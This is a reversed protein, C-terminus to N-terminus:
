LKTIFFSEFDSNPCETRVIPLYVNFFTSQLLHNVEWIIFIASFLFCNHKFPPTHFFIRWSGSEFVSLCSWIWQGRGRDVRGSILLDSDSFHHLVSRFPAERPPRTRKWHRSWCYIFMQNYTQLLQGTLFRLQSHQLFLKLLLVTM